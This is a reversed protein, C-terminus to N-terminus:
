DRQRRLLPRQGGIPDAQEPRRDAPDALGLRQLQVVRLQDLEDAALQPRQQADGRFRHVGPHGAPAPSQRLVRDAMDVPDDPPPPPRGCDPTPCAAPSTPTRAPTAAARPEPTPPPAYPPTPTGGHM